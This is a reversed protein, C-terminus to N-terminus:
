GARRSAPRETTVVPAAGFRELLAAVVPLRGPSTQAAPVVEAATGGRGGPLRLGCFRRPRDLAGALSTASCSGLLSLLLAEPYAKDLDRLLARKAVEAGATLDVVVFPSAGRPRHVGVELRELADSVPAAGDRARLVALIQELSRMAAEADGHVVAVRAGRLLARALLPAGHRGDSFALVEPGRDIATM